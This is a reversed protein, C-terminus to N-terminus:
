DSLITLNFPLDDADKEPAKPIFFSPLSETDEFDALWLWRSGKDTWISGKDFGMRKLEMGLRKLSIRQQTKTEIYNKIDTGSMLKDGKKIYRHILEAETNEETFSIADKNLYEIDDSSLRWRLGAKYLKAVESWLERKDISNYLSHDISDVQVPIFRRNGTPDNLIEPDNTTGCLVALRNLDESMRGYPKRVSFTQKSTLEKFRKNEKKSKGGMEDDMIILKRCMLIEADKDEDLKSEAYYDPYTRGHKHLEPPMLRRFWETKGTNQKTGCLVLVLPSHEGYAASIVGALWKAGFYILWDSDTGKISSFISSLQRANTKILDIVSKIPLHPGTALDPFPSENADLLLSDFYITLPNYEPVLRKGFIIDDMVQVSIKPIIKRAETRIDRVDEDNLPESHNEIRGTITNKRLDYNHRLWTEFQEVINEDPAEIGQEMVQAVIQKQM